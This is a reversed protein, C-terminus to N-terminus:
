VSASESVIVAGADADRALAQLRSSARDRSDADIVAREGLSARCESALWM